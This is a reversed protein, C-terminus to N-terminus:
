RVLRCSRPAAGAAEKWRRHRTPEGISKAVWVIAKITVRCGNAHRMGKLVRCPLLHRVQNAPVCRCRPRSDNEPLSSCLRRESRPQSFIPVPVKAVLSKGLNEPNESPALGMKECGRRSLVHKRPAFSSMQEWLAWMSVSEGFVVGSRAHELLPVAFLVSGKQLVGPRGRAAM